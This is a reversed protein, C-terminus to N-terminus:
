TSDDLFERLRAMALRLRSKVTGLPIGLTTAIDGHPRGEFFSLEVVRVQEEPLEALAARVRSEREVAELPADPPPSEAPQVFEYVQFLKSRQDRRFRDIRLNRAIAFIWASVTARGPDYREAKHWVAILTEQALDEAIEGAAGSRALMTQVRPAYYSFLEKFAERDRRMAIARVLSAASQPTMRDARDHM